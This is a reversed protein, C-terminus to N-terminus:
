LSTACKCIYQLIIEYSNSNPMYFVKKLIEERTKLLNDEQLILLNKIFKEFGNLDNLEYFGKRIKEGFEDFPARDPRNLFVIPKKTPFYEALFSSCDTILCDSTKFIDFYDGKDYVTANKLNNWESIYDDYEKETMFKEFLCMSKLAPHPKFVFSYQPNNKAFNLFFKYDRTFTSMRLGNNNISHHPAYIIRAKVNEGKWLDEFEQKIPLKYNDFKLSGVALLNDKMRCVKQYFSNHYESESFFKWLSQYVEKVNQSGWDKENLTTYGYPVMCTLSYKSVIKPHNVNMLYWPQTYFVIDPKLIKLDKNQKNEYDYFDIADIGQAKFFEKNETQTFEIRNKTVIPVLVVPLIEFRTKEIKFANYLNGYSWKCNEEVVFAVRIKNKKKINNIVNKYNTKIKDLNNKKNIEFNLFITKNNTIKSKKLIRELSKFNPSTILVYETELNKIESPKFCKYGKYEKINNKEFRIDSLGVVNFMKNLDYTECLADFYSGAPYFIVRKGEAIKATKILKEKFDDSKFCDKWYNFESNM